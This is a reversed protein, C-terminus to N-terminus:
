IYLYRPDLTTIVPTLTPSIYINLSFSALSFGLAPGMMFLFLSFSVLAPAKSKKVNDDMYALGLTRCLEGGIGAVLQAGFLM